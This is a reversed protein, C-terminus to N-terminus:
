GVTEKHDYSAKRGVSESVSPLRVTDGHFQTADTKAFKRASVKNEFLIDLEGYTRGKPEPLRFFTWLFLIFCIGSWFFGTKAGWNWATPNLMYPTWIYNIIGWFNYFNRAMVITKQRLRTSPIEAVLSYCVPGVTLDYTFTYSFTNILM